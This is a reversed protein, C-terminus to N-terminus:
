TRRARSAGRLASAVSSRNAIGLKRFISESHRRATHDSIRLREAIEKNALGEALLIAVDGERKSLGAATAQELTVGSRPQVRVFCSRGSGGFSEIATASVSFVDISWLPAHHIDGVAGARLNELGTLFRAAHQEMEILLHERKPRPLLAFLDDFARSRHLWRGTSGIVAVPEM